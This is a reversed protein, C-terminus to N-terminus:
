ADKGGLMRHIAQAAAKGEAAANVVEKGGNRCDGGAYWGKRGTAGSEDTVIRGRDVVVGALGSLLQGLTSQGIAMLVLDADLSLESGAIPKKHADTRVLRARQVRGSGEFAVPVAHFASAVGAERAALWEHRYGPMQAESGRYVLTVSPVGLGALERVGDIATNGGGIVLASKVGELALKGLKMREIVEVAGHVGPLDEGPVGLRTDPGLGVGVFVAAHERELQDLTIDKGVEVGTKVEVGGIGLVWEAEEVSRDARMKYPAIGTTNLGGIVPRKEYVTCAHGLRRLEHAAALSAPGAGVLGVSKGSPAGAEFLRWGQAYAHDTAFRQLKGIQIPPVGMQNYVCDGVCLVEVPCVRACSMGLINAEFITRASGKLNGTAIKRIFEPVDIHTPCAKTCPADSCYLCRNAEVAAQKADYEHKYDEFVSESRDTPIPKSMM